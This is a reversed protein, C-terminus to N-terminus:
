CRSSIGIETRDISSFQCFVTKNYEMRGKLRDKQHRDVFVICLGPQNGQQAIDALLRLFNQLYRNRDAHSLQLESVSKLRGHWVASLAETVAIVPEPPTIQM